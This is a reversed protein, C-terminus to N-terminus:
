EVWVRFRYYYETELFGFQKFHFAGILDSLKDYPLLKGEYRFQNEPLEVFLSSRRLNDELEGHYPAVVILKKM